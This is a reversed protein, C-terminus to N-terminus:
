AKPLKRFVLFSLLPSFGEGKSAAASPSIADGVNVDSIRLPLAFTVEGEVMSDQEALVFTSVTASRSSLLLAM